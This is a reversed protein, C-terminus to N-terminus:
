TTPRARRRRRPWSADETGRGCDGCQGARKIPVGCLECSVKPKKTPATWTGAEKEAIVALGRNYDNQRSEELTGEYLGAQINGHLMNDPIPKRGLRRAEQEYESRSIQTM